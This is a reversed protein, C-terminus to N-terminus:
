MPMRSWGSWRRHFRDFWLPASGSTLRVGSESFRDLDDPNLEDSLHLAALAVEAELALM